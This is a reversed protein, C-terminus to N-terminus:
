QKVKGKMADKNNDKANSGKYIALGSLNVVERYENPAFSRTDQTCTWSLGDVQGWAIELAM